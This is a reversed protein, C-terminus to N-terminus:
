CSGGVRGEWSFFPGANPRVQVGCPGNLWTLSGNTFATWNDAKRWAMLGGQTIQNSDGIENWYESTVCPGVIDAIQDHLAKFGLIYQCPGGTPPPPTSRGSSTPTPTAGSSTGLTLHGGRIESPADGRGDQWVATTGSIDPSIQNKEAGTVKFQVDNTIDYSWVNDDEENRRDSWVILRDSIRPASTIKTRDSVSHDDKTSIKYLRIRQGDSAPDGSRYVIYDGDIDPDHAQGSDTVRTIDDADLDKFYIDPETPM